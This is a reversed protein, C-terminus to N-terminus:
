IVHQKRQASQTELVGNAWDSIAKAEDHDPYAKTQRDCEMCCVFKGGGFAHEIISEGGCKCIEM